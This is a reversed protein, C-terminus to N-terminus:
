VLDRKKLVLLRYLVNGIFLLLMGEFMSCIIELSFSQYSTSLFYDHYFVSMEYFHTVNRFPVIMFMIGFVLIIVMTLKSKLLNSLLYIIVNVVSAFVLARLIYFLLYYLVNVGYVPHNFLQHNGFSFIIAGSSALVFSVLYLLVTGVIIDKVFSKILMKYNSIRSVLNYSNTFESRMYIINLGSAIFFFMNFYSNTLIQMLKQFFGYYLSGSLTPLAVGMLILLFILVNNKRKFLQNVKLLSISIMQTM